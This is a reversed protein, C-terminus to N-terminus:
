NQFLTKNDSLEVKNNKTVHLYKNITPVKINFGNNQQELKFLKNPGNKYISSQVTNKFHELYHYNYSPNTNNKKKLIINDNDKIMNWETKQNSVIIKPHKIGLYLEKGVVKIIKKDNLNNEMSDLKNELKEIEITYTILLLLVFILLFNIINKM